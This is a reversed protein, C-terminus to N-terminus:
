SINFISFGFLISLRANLESQINGFRKKKRNQTYSVQHLNGGGSLNEQILLYIFSYIDQWKILLKTIRYNSYYLLYIDM